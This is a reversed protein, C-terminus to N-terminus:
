GNDSMMSQKVSKCLSSNKNKRMSHVYIVIAAFLAFLLTPLLVFFGQMHHGKKVATQKHKNITGM